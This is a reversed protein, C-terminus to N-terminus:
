TVHHGSYVTSYVITLSTIQSAMAGMIVDNYDSPGTVRFINGNSSTMMYVTKNHKTKNYSSRYNISSKHSQIVQLPWDSASSSNGLM